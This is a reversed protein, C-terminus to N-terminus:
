NFKSYNLFTVKSQAWFYNKKLYIYDAFLNNNGCESYINTIYSGLENSHDTICADCGNCNSHTDWAHQKYEDITQKILLLKNVATIRDQYSKTSDKLIAASLRVISLDSM